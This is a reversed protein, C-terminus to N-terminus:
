VCGRTRARQSAGPGRSSSRIGVGRTTATLRSSLWPNLLTGASYIVRTAPSPTSPSAWAPVKTCCRDRARRSGFWGLRRWTCRRWASTKSSARAMPKSNPGPSRPSFTRVASRSRSPNGVPVRSLKPPGTTRSVPRRLGQAWILVKRGPNSLTTSDRVSPVGVSSGAGDVAEGSHAVPDIMRLAPTIATTSRPPSTTRPWGIVTVRGSVGRVGAAGELCDTMPM